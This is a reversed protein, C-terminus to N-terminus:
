EPNQPAREPLEGLFRELESSLLLTRAGYKKAKLDGRAIARDLTALSIGLLKAAEKRTLAPRSKEPNIFSPLEV